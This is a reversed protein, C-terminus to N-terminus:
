KSQNRKGTILDGNDGRKKSQIRTFGHGAKSYQEHVAWGARISEGWYKYM